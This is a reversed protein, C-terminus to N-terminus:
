KKRLALSLELSGLIADADASYAGYQAAEFGAQKRTLAFRIDLTRNEFKYHTESTQFAGGRPHDRPIETLKYGAPFEVQTHSELNFPHLRFPTERKESRYSKLRDHEWAATLTGLMTEDLKKFARQIKYECKIIFPKEIQELNTLDLTNLRMDANQFSLQREMYQKRRDPEVDKLLRRYRAATDGTMTTEETASIAGDEGVALRRDVAIEPAAPTANSVKVIRPDKPDLVLVEKGDLWAPAGSVLDSDKDTCDYFKNKGGDTVCVIMHDFQDMSPLDARLSSSSRVLTLSAPIKVANLMQMLLLSHDKCDGYKNEVIQAVRQPIRARRGFEIAKYTYDTQLCRTLAAIKDSQTAANQTLKRALAEVSGEPTLYGALAALYEQSEKKWTADADSLYVAPLFKSLEEQLPEWYYAAPATQTWALGGDIRRPQLNTSASHKVREIDGSLFLSSAAAAYGGGLFYETWRMTEPKARDRRTMMMELVCGPQLGSVPIYLTRKNGATEDRGNDLVYYDNVNGTSVTKGQADTVTLTNVYVQEDLPEFPFEITSFSEVGSKDLVKVKWYETTKFEKGKLYSLARVRNLYYANAGANKPADAASQLLSPPIAVPDIREKLNSNDGQGLHASARRLLSESLVDNADKKLANEFSTKADRYAKRQLEVRGKLQWAYASEFKHEFLGKVVRDAEDVNSQGLNALAAECELSPNFPVKERWVALFELEEKYKGQERLVYAHRLCVAVSNVHKEYAAVMNLAEDYREKEVLLDIYANFQDDDEHDDKFLTKFADLAADAHGLLQEFHARWAHLNKISPHRGINANLADLGSQYQKADDYAMLLNELIVPNAPEFEVCQKLLVIAKDHQHRRNLELAVSNLASAQSKKEAPSFDRANPPNLPRTFAVSEIEAFTKQFNPAGKKSWAAVLYGFGEHTAVKFRYDYTVDAITRVFSFTCGNVDKGPLRQLDRVKKFDINLRELLGAAVIDDSVEEGFLYVPIVIFAHNSGRAAGFEVENVDIKTQETKVWGKEKLKVEYAFLKSKFAPMVAARDEAAANPDIRRFNRLVTEFEGPLASKQRSDAWALIQYAFGNQAFVWHAYSINLSSVHADTYFRVGNMGNVMHNESAGIAASSDNSKIHLQSIEALQENTMAMDSGTREAVIALFVTPRSRMFVHKAAPSIKAADGEVWGPLASLTYNMDPDNVQAAGLPRGNEDTKLAFENKASMSKALGVFVGGMFLCTLIGSLILSWVAQRKGQNYKGPASKLEVLGLIAVVISALILCFVPLIIIVRLLWISESDKFEGLVMLLIWSVLVMMLSLVCKTNTAPRRAIEICKLIGIGILIFGFVHGIVEGEKYSDSEAITIWFQLNM